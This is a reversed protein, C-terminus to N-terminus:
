LEGTRPNRDFGITNRLGNAFFEQGNSNSRSPATTAATAPRVRERPTRRATM